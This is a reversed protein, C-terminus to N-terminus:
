KMAEELARRIDAQVEDIPQNGNVDLLANQRRYYDILPKTQKEYVDLRNRVTEPKDDDRQVMKGGCKPCTDSGKLLDVHLAEGCVQCMRRGAIRDIIVQAPVDVNVAAEVHSFQDLAEAQPVTRPFGDLLYGKACDAQALREKVIGIVIEDSVLEGREITAKAQIGLPTQNAIAERLMAGTSIHPIDYTQSIRAAQTGKGAGPPGLFVLNM